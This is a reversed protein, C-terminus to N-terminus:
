RGAPPGRELVREAPTGVDRLFRSDRETVVVPEREEASEARMREAAEDARKAATLLCLILVVFALWGAILLAITVASM